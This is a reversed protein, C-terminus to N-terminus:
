NLHIKKLGVNYKYHTLFIRSTSIIIIPACFVLSTYGVWLQLLIRQILFFNSQKQRSISFIFNVKRYTKKKIQTHYHSINAICCLIIDFRRIAISSCIRMFFTRLFKDCSKPYMNEFTTHGIGAGSKLLCEAVNTCGAYTDTEDSGDDCDSSCDCKYIEQICTM